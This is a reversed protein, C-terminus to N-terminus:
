SSGSVFQKNSMNQAAKRVASKLCPMRKQRPAISAGDSYVVTSQTQGPIGELSKECTKFLVSLLAPM